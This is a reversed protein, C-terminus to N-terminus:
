TMRPSASYGPLSEYNEIGARTAIGLIRDGELRTFEEAARRHQQEARGLLKAFRPKERVPDLWPDSSMAPYCFFGGGVVRELLDLASDVQNLHALHRTLYFL